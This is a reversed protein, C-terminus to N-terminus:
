FVLHPKPIRTNRTKPKFKSSSLSSLKMKKQNQTTYITYSQQKLIKFIVTQTIFIQRM